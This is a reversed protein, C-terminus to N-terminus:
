ATFVILACLCLCVVAIKISMNSCDEAFWEVEKELFDRQALMMPPVDPEMLEVGKNMEKLRRVASIYHVYCMM